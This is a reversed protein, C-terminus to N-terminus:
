TLGTPGKNRGSKLVGSVEQRLWARRSWCEIVRGGAGSRDGVVGGGGADVGRSECCLFGIM